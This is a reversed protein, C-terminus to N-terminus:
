ALRRGASAPLSYSPFSLIAPGDQQDFAPPRATRRAVRRRRRGSGVLGLAGAALLALTSPEPVVNLLGSGALYSSTNPAGSGPGGWIGPPQAVGNIYLANINDTGDYNLDLIGGSGLNNVWANSTLVLDPYDLILTGASVITDGTYTNSAAMMLTGSDVKTLSGPGSLSSALTVVYGATDFIAGGGSTGLAMPLNTTFSGSALLTGGNFNFAATGSGQSLSSIKLLGSNLNYTGSSSPSFGLVLNSSNTGGSQTLTGTGSSGVLEFEATLNGSGNLNYSGSSGVNYGLYLFDGISNTGASQMFTGTGSYGVLEFEATLSGSGNLNYSGSSGVNTALFLYNGISNSGGSQIFTGTGSNGVVEYTTASLGGGTMQVTGGNGLSLTGCTAGPMTVVATGGTSVFNNSIYAADSGTPTLSATWNLGIAWDGYGSTHGGIWSYAAAHLPVATRLMTAVVLGAFLIAPFRAVRCSRRVFFKDFM